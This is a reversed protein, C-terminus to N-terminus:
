SRPCCHAFIQLQKCDSNTPCFKDSCSKGLLNMTIGAAHFTIPATQNSGGCKPSTNERFLNLCYSTLKIYYIKYSHELLVKKSM